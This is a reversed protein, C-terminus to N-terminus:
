SEAPLDQKKDYEAVVRDWVERRHVVVERPADVGLRVRSAQIHVVHIRVVHDAVRLVIQEEQRRSLVLM